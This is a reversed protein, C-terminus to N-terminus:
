EAGRQSDASAHEELCQPHQGAHHQDLAALTRPCADFGGAALVDAVARLAQQAAEVVVGFVEAGDAQGQLSGNM